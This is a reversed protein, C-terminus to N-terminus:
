DAKPGSPAGDVELFRDCYSVFVGIAEIKSRIVDRMLKEPVRGALFSPRMEEALEAFDKVVLAFSVFAYKWFNHMPLDTLENVATLFRSISYSDCSASLALCREKALLVSKAHREDLSSSCGFALLLPLVLLMQRM